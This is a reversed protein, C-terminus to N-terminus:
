PSELPFVKLWNRSSLRRIMSRYQFRKWERSFWLERNEKTHITTQALKRCIHSVGSPWVTFIPLQTLWFLQLFTDVPRDIHETCALLRSAYMRSVLQAQMGLPVVCHKVLKAGAQSYDTYHVHKKRLSRTSFQIFGRKRIHKISLNLAHQFYPRHISVDDEFIIAADLGEDLLRRWCSRHSAFAAIETNKLVFPYHPDHLAPNYFDSFDDISLTLGDIANHISTPVPCSAVLDDVNKRRNLARNLHIVFAGINM